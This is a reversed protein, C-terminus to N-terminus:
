RTGGARKLALELSRRTLTRVMEVRYWASGRHDDIPRCDNAAADSAQDLLRDTPVKGVLVEKVAHAIIPKPAVAGLGVRVDSVPGGPEELSVYVAIGVTSIDLAKRNALKYYTSGSHPAPAPYTVVRLIEDPKAATKGPALPFDSAPLLREGNCSSLTIMGGLTITPVAMDAAPRAHALNGGLTGRNRVLPSGLNDAGESLATWKKRIVESRQIETITTLAGIRLTGDELVEIRKLSSLKHLSVLYAPPSFDRGLMASRLSGNGAMEPDTEWFGCEITSRVRGEPHSQCGDCRPVHQPIIPQRLDVLLDTGGALIKVGDRTHKELMSCAEDLTRPVLVEFKPLRM